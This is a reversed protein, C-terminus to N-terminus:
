RANLLALCKEIDKLYIDIKSQLAQKDDDTYLNSINNTIIKEETSSILKERELLLANISQNEKKLQENEKKLASTKKLLAQVALQLNKFSAHLEEM